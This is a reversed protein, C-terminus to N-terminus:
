RQVYKAHEFIEYRNKVQSLESIPVAFVISVSGWLPNRELLTWCLRKSKWNIM